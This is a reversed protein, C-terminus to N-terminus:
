VEAAKVEVSVDADRISIIRDKPGIIDQIKPRAYLKIASGTFTSVALNNIKVAGTEYDVTGINANLILFGSSTNTLIQLIGNGNDQIFATANNYIFNSSKVAAKHVTIDEGVALPHDTILPNKYSFFYTTPVSPLPSLDIIMQLETDNSVIASDSDDISRALRSQRASKSFDSLSRLNYGSIANRATTEIQGTSKASIKTNYFVTSIVRVYLFDPSVIVPEISLPCRENLFNAYKVKNNESVGDGTTVDVAVIVRGYKPPTLEEGGYVSVAQIEAFENKLLNEYDSETVAREQIQISKPAYFKISDLTEREAGAESNATTTVTATYGSITGTPTFTTAKNPATGSSVRYRVEVVEGILPERGFANNGFTIEYSQKEAPQLYYVKQSAAVDFLNQKFVYEDVTAGSASSAFVRVDISDTDVQDNSVIYKSTAAVSYLETELTGEFIQVGTISYVSDIPRVTYAIDTSFSYTTGDVQTTFKTGKPITIFSPSDDPSFTLTVTASSSRYSRPLYNLEKCHSVISSRLQASDLFMEGLAMNSYFNNYFTNYALVDLIVSLTSGDYDYDAFQTQGQLYTKINSKIQDFDLQAIPTSAM